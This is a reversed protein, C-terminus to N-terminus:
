SSNQLREKVQSHLEKMAEAFEEESVSRTTTQGLDRLESIGRSHM